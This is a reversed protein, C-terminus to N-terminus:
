FVASVMVFAWTMNGDLRGIEAMAHDQLVRAVGGMLNLNATARCTVTLDVENAYHSSSLTGQKAAAFSHVDAVVAVDTVPKLALKLARDQLGHGATHVPINTFQDALGYNKHNTGYLTSFVRIRGSDPRDDGSLYDYWLTMHVRGQAFGRGVRAALLYASVPEGTRRGRQLAGEFRGDVAGAFVYRVGVTHQSTDIEGGSVDHLWYADLSGPGMEGSAAYVGFLDVNESVTPATADGIRYGIFTVAADGRTADMRVGDFARGQSSWESRGVLREGGLGTEQRGVTATLWPARPDRYRLYGQHLDWHDATYDGSPNTEEGWIRVDQMQIFVSLSTDPRAEMSARVRMVTFADGGGAASPRRYESRPRLQGHFTISQSCAPAASLVLLGAAGLWARAHM